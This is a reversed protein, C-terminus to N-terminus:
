RSAGRRRLRWKLSHRHLGALIGKDPWFENQFVQVVNWSIEGKQARNIYGLVEAAKALEQADRERCERLHQKQRQHSATYKQRKHRPRSIPM